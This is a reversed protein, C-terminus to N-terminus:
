CVDSCAMGEGWWWWWFGSWQGGVYVRSLLFSCTDSLHRRRICAITSLWASVPPTCICGLVARVYDRNNSLVWSVVMTITVGAVSGLSIGVVGTCDVDQCLPMGLHGPKCSEGAHWMCHSGTATGCLGSSAAVALLM